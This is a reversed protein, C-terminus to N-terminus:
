RAVDGKGEERGTGNTSELQLEGAKQFIWLFLLCISMAVTLVIPIFFIHLQGAGNGQKGPEPAFLLATFICLAFFSLSMSAIPALRNKNESKSKAWFTLACLSPVHCGVALCTAWFTLSDNQQTVLSSHCYAFCGTLILCASIAVLYVRPSNDRKSLPACQSQSIKRSEYPNTQM